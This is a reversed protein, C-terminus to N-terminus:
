PAVSRSRLNALMAAVSGSKTAVPLMPQMIWSAPLQGTGITRRSHTEIKEISGFLRGLNERTQASLIDIPTHDSARSSELLMARVLLQSNAWQVLRDIVDVERPAGKM